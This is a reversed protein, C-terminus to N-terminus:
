REHRFLPSLMVWFSRASAAPTVSTVMLFLTLSRFLRARVAQNDPFDKDQSGWHCQANTAAPGSSCMIFHLYQPRSKIIFSLILLPTAKRLCRLFSWSM